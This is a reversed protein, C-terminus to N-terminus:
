AAVTVWRVLRDMVFMGDWPSEYHSMEGVPPCREAGRLTAREAFAIRRSPELALGISQTRRSALEAADMADAIPRVFVARGGCAEALGEDDEGYLVTWAPGPSYHAIGRADYMARLTLLRSVDQARPSAAPLMACVRAMADALRAAFERPSMAGGQEVFITHPSNCGQQDFLCVDFAARTTVDAVGREDLCEKGIVMYSYKPGFVIDEAGPAKPLAQIMEIAEQSGWAVRADAAFSMAEQAARDEREVYRAAAARALVAGSIRRGDATEYTVQSLAELLAPLVSPWDAPVKVLSVNKTLWAQVLSFVGLLPVNGAIWHVVLGRPQAHLLRDGAPLFADLYRRTGRMALDLQAALRAPELWRLLFPLGLPRLQRHLPHGPDALVRRLEGLLGLIQDSELAHLADAHQRLGQILEELPTEQDAAVQSMLSSAM